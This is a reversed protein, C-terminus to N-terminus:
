QVVLIPSESVTAVQPTGNICNTQNLFVPYVPTIPTGAADTFQVSCANSGTAGCDINRVVCSAATTGTKYRTGIILSPSITAFASGVALLVAASGLIANKTKM